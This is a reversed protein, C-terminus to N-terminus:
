ARWYIAAAGARWCPDGFFSHYTPRTGSKGQRTPRLDARSQIRTIPGKHVVTANPLTAQSIRKWEGAHPTLVRAVTGAGAIEPQLADADIVLPIGSDRVIEAALALTEAECSLGPGIVLAMARSIKERLLHLGELALGGEHTEPWAVWMAEPACAAFAAALSEPVFATVLGVGSRLAALVAMLVAGPFHRSGGVVFVHGYSRKDTQASRLAALPALVESTLVRQAGPAGAGFFGLDLYRLRGANAADLAPTKVCGTAYTFDARFIDASPLDVAGRLRVSLANVREILKAIRPEV